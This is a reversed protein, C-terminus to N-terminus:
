WLKEKLILDNFYSLAKKADELKQELHKKEGYAKNLTSYVNSLNDDVFEKYSLIVQKTNELTEIEKKLNEIEENLVDIATGAINKYNETNANEILQKKNEICALFDKLLTIRASAGHEVRTVYNKYDEKLRKETANKEYFTKLGKYHYITNEVEQLKRYIEEDISFSNTFEDYVIADNNLFGYTGAIRKMFSEFSENDTFLRSAISQM